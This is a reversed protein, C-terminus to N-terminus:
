TQNKWLEICKQRNAKSLRCIVELYNDKSVTRDQPLFEHYVKVNLEIQCSKKLKSEEPRKWQFPQAETEIDYGHNM